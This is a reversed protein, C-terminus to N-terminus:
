IFDDLGDSSSSSSSSRRRRKKKKKSKSKKSRKKRRRRRPKLVEPNTIIDLTKLTNTLNELYEKIVEIDEVNDEIAEELDEENSNTKLENGIQNMKQGYKRLTNDVTLSNENIRVDMMKLKEIIQDIENMNSSSLDNIRKFLYIIAATNIGNWILSAKVLDM